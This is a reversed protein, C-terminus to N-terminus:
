DVLWVDGPEVPQPAEGEFIATIEEGPLSRNHITVDDIRGSEPDENGFFRGQSLDSRTGLRLTGEPNFRSGTVEESQELLDGNLYVAAGDGTAWTFALHHWQGDHYGEPGNYLWHSGDSPTFRVRLQGTDNTLYLHLSHPLNVENDWGVPGQSALYQFSGTDNPTTEFWLSLTFEEHGGTYDFHPLLIYDSQGNFVPSVPGGGPRGPGEGLGPSFTADRGAIIDEPTADLPWNGLQAQEPPEEPVFEPHLPMVDQLAEIVFAWNSRSGSRVEPDQELHIFRETSPSSSVAIICPNPSGNTFRGQTNTSGSLPLSTSPEQHSRAFRSDGAADLIENMRDALQRSISQEYNQNTFPTGNSIIVHSEHTTAAMGHVDLTISPPRELRIEEHFAQFFTNMYHSVDSIRYPNGRLTGDCPSEIPSNLRHTGSQAFAFSGTEVYMDIANVRTGDFLPHPSQTFMDLVPNLRFAYVGHWGPGTTDERLVIHRGGEQTDRFYILRYGITGAVQSAAIYREELVLQMVQRWADMEASTPERFINSSTRGPIPVGELYSKLSGTRVEFSGPGGSKVNEAPAPRPGAALALLALPTLLAPAGGTLHRFSSM